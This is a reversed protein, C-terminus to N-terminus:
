IWSDMRNLLTWEWEMYNGRFRIKLRKRALQTMAETKAADARLKLDEATQLPKATQENIKDVDTVTATAENIQDALDQIEGADMAMEANLCENAVEKVKFKLYQM